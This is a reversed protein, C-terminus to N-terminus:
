TQAGTFPAIRHTRSGGGRPRTTAQTYAPAFVILLAIIDIPKRMANSGHPHYSRTLVPPTIAVTDSFSGFPSPSSAASTRGYVTLVQDAGTGRVSTGGKYTNAFDSDGWQVDSTSSEPSLICSIVSGDYKAAQRYVGLHQGADMAVNYALGSPCNVVVVSQAYSTASFPNTITGFNMPRTSVSCEPVVTMAVSMTASLTPAAQAGAIALMASLGLAAKLRLNM